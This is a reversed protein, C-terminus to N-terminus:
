KVQKSTNNLFYVRWQNKTISGVCRDVSYFMEASGDARYFTATTDTNSLKFYLVTTDKPVIIISDQHTTDTHTTDTVQTTDFKATTFNQFQGKLKNGSFIGKLVQGYVVIGVNNNSYGVVNNEITLNTSVPNDFEVSAMQEKNVGVGQGIRYVATASDTTNHSFIINGGAQTRLAQTFLIKAAAL